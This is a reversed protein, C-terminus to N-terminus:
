ITWTSGANSTRLADGAYSGEIERRVGFSKTFGENDWYSSKVVVAYKTDTDLTVAEGFTFEIWTGATNTGLTSSAVTGSALVAGTPAGESTAYVSLTLTTGPTGAKYLLLKASTASYEESTTFTQGIQVDEVYIGFAGDDGTNYYDKLTAM